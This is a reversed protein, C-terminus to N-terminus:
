TLSDQSFSMNGLLEELTSMQPLSKTWGMHDTTTKSPDNLNLNPLHLGMRTTRRGEEKGSSSDFLDDKADAVSIHSVADKLLPPSEPPREPVRPSRSEQEFGELNRKPTVLSSVAETAIHHEDSNKDSSTRTENTATQNTINNTAPNSTVASSVVSSVTAIQIAGNSAVNGTGNGRSVSTDSGTANNALSADKSKMATPRQSPVPTTTLWPQAMSV